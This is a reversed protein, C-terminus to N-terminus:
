VVSKRDKEVYSTCVSLTNDTSGDDILICEWDTFTQELVSGLCRSLCYDRNYIPIIVSIM